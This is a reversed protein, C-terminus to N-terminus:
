RRGNSRKVTQRLPPKIRYVKYGPHGPSATNNAELLDLQVLSDLARHLTTADVRGGVIQHIRSAPLGTGGAQGLAELIKDEVRAIPVKMVGQSVLLATRSLYEGVLSARELDKQEIAAHGAQMAYLLAFKMTQLPIRVLIHAASGPTIRQLSTYHNFLDDWLARSGPTLMLDFPGSSAMGQALRFINQLEITLQTAQAEDPPEPYAKPARPTGVFTAFRPILGSEIHVYDLRTELNQPTTATIISLSPSRVTIPRSRTRPTFDEGDYLALLIEQLNATGSRGIKVLLNTLEPEDLLVRQGPIAAFSTNAGRGQGPDGERCFLELLGEGSGVSRTVRLFDEPFARQLLDRGRGMLTTKRATGTEGILLVYLNGFTQRGYYVSVLRGLALGLVTSGVAFIGELAGDTTPEVWRRFDQLWGTWVGEPLAPIEGTHPVQDPTQDNLLCLDEM